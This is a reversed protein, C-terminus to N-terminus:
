PLQFLPKPGVIVYFETGGAQLQTPMGAANFGRQVAAQTPSLRKPNPVDLVIEVPPSQFEADLVDSDQGKQREIRWNARSFVHAIQEAFEHADPQSFRTAIYVTANPFSRINEYLVHAEFTSLARPRLSSEVRALDQAHVLNNRIAVGAALGAALTM